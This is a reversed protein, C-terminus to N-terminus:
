YLCNYEILDALDELSLINMQPHNNNPKNSVVTLMYDSEFITTFTSNVDAHIKIGAELRTWKKYFETKDSTQIGYHNSLKYFDRDKMFETDVGVPSDDFAALVIKNSHSISFHIDSFKFIPKNKEVIITRDPIKYIKEGVYNVIAKGLKSQLAKLEVRSLNETEQNNLVIYYIEM